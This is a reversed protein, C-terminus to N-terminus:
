CNQGVAADEGPLGRNWEEEKESILNLLDSATWQTLLFCLMKQTRQGWFARQVEEHVNVVWVEVGKGSILMKQCHSAVTLVVM